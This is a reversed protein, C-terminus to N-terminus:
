LPFIVQYYLFFVNHTQTLQLASLQLYLLSLNTDHTVYEDANYRNSQILNDYMFM